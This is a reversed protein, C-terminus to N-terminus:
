EEDDGDGGVALYPEVGPVLGEIIRQRVAVKRLEQDLESDEAQDGPRQQNQVHGLAPESLRQLQPEPLTQRDIEDLSALEPAIPTL